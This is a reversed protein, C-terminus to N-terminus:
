KREMRENHEDKRMYEILDVATIQNGYRDYCLNMLARELQIPLSAQELKSEAEEPSLAPVNDDIVVLDRPVSWGNPHYHAVMMGCIPCEVPMEANSDAHIYLKGVKYVPEGKEDGPIPDQLFAEPMPPDEDPRKRIKPGDSAVVAFVGAPPNFGRVQEALTKDEAETSAVGPAPDGARRLSDVEAQVYPPLPMPVTRKKTIPPIVDAAARETARAKQGAEQAANLTPDPIVSQLKGNTTETRPVPTRKVEKKEPPSFDDGGAWDVDDPEILEERHENLYRHGLSTVTWRKRVRGVESTRIEKVQAYGGGVLATIANEVQERAAQSDGSKTSIYLRLTTANGEEGHDKVFKIWWARSFRGSEKFNAAAEM